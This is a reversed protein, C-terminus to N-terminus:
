AAGAGAVTAPASKRWTDEAAKVVEAFDLSDMMSGVTLWDYGPVGVLEEQTLATRVYAAHDGWPRYHQHLSPGFLGLTPIAAAAAMHMLGSDHGVYLACRALCAYATPLDVAGVLDILRDPPVADIVPKAIERERPAAFIAVRAGPLISGPGTLAEILAVFNEGDWIKGRWNATPGLGLVPGAPGAPILRAAQAQQERTAWLRPAPPADQLGLTRALHVVRHEDARPRGAVIRAKALVTWPIISNRLDVILDWRRGVAQAWVAAWHRSYSRKTIAIVRAVGPVAEFLPAPAAGCAVTIGGEARPDDLLHGLLGTSLVADGIRTHGIFFIAM